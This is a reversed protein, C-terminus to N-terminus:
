RTAEPARGELADFLELAAAEAHRPATVTVRLRDGINEAQFTLFGCCESEQAILENVEGVASPRYDLHLTLDNRESRLLARHALDRIESLRGELGEPRLTCATALSGPVATGCTPCCAILEPLSHKTTEM